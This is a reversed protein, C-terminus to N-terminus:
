KAAPTPAASTPAIASATPAAGAAAPPTAPQSAAAAQPQAGPNIWCAHVRGSLSEPQKPDIPGFRV